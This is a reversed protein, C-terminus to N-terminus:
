RDCTCHWLHHIPCSWFDGVTHGMDCGLFSAAQHLVLSTCAQAWLGSSARSLWALGSGHQSSWTAQPEPRSKGLGSGQAQAMAKLRRNSYYSSWGDHSTQMVYWTVKGYVYCYGADFVIMETDDSSTIQEPSSGDWGLRSWRTILAHDIISCCNKVTLM